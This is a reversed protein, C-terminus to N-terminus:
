PKAKLQSEYAAKAKKAEEVKPNGKNKPDNIFQDLMKIKYTIVPDPTAAAAPQTGPAQPAAGPATKPLLGQPQGQILGGKPQILGPTGPDQPRPIRSADHGGAELAEIRANTKDYIQRKLFAIKSRVTDPHDGRQPLMKMYRKIDGEALKGNELFVGVTQARQLIVADIQDATRAREGVGFFAKASDVKSQAKGFYDPYQEVLASIADLSDSASKPDGFEMAVTATLPKGGAGGKGGGGGGSRLKAARAKTLEYKAALDDMREKTPTLFMEGKENFEADFGEQAAKQMLQNRSQVPKLGLNEIEKELKQQELPHLEKAKPSLKPNPRLQKVRGNEDFDVDYGSKGAEIIQDDRKREAESKTAAIRAAMEKRKYNRDEM